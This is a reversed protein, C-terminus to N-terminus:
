RPASRGLLGVLDRASSGGAPQPRGDLLPLTLCFRAETGTHEYTLDGHMQRALTRAIPLGIGLGASLGDSGAARHYPQFVLEVQDAPIGPGDDAVTLMGWDGEQAVVVSVSRGGYRLANTLLNRVIQRVRAPDARCVVGGGSVELGDPLPSWAEVVQNTQARLDTPVEAFRLRGLGAKAAVLLDEVINTLDASQAALTEIMQMREDPDMEPDRDLMHAFGVIGTLPTRLEHSIAAIFDDKSRVLNQLEIRARVAETQERALALVRGQEGLPAVRMEWHRDDDGIPLEYEFAIVEGTELATDIAAKMQDALEPPLVDAPTKGLFEDPSVYLDSETSAGAGEGGASVHYDIYTGDADLVFLLDPIADILAGSTSEASRLDEEVARLRTVDSVATVMRSLRRGPAPGGHFIGEFTTGDLRVGRYDLDGTDTGEWISVFQELFLRRSGEDVIDSPFPGLLEEPASAGLMRAAEPNADTTVVLRIGETLVEPHSELHSRLDEVGAEELSDLWDAVRSFDNEWMAIPARHFLYAYRSESQAVQRRMVLMAPIGFALFVIQALYAVVVGSPWAEVVFHRIGLHVAWMAAMFWLYRRLSRAAVQAVGAMTLVILGAAMTVSANSGLFGGIVGLGLGAIVNLAMANIRGTAL